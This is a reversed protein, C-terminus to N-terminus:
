QTLALSIDSIASATQSIVKVYDTDLLQLRFSLTPRDFVKSIKIPYVDTKVPQSEVISDKKFQLRRLTSQNDLYYLFRESIPIISRASNQLIQNTINQEFSRLIPNNIINFDVLGCFHTASNLSPHIAVECSAEVVSNDLFVFCDFSNPLKEGTKEYCVKNAITNQGLKLKEITLRSIKYLKVSAFGNSQPDALKTLEITKGNTYLFPVSLIRFSESVRAYDLDLLSKQTVSIWENFSSLKDIYNKRKIVEKLILNSEKISMTIVLSGILVCVMIELLSMGSQSTLFLHKDCKIAVNSSLKTVKCNQVENDTQVVKSLRNSFYNIKVLGFNAVGLLTSIFVASVFAELLMHTHVRRVNVQSAAV